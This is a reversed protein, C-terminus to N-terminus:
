GAEVFRTYLTRRDGNADTVVWKARYVGAPLASVRVGSGVAVNRLSVVRRSTAASVIRLAVKAHVATYVSSGAGPLTPLAQAVFPGYLTAGNNPAFSGLDPVQTSTMGGSLDDTQEIDRSPLGTADGLPPCINGTLTAGGIGVLHGLPPNALPKGYYDGAECTGGSLFAQEGTVRVKLHAVHLTTLRRGSSNRLAIVDGGRIGLATRAEGNFDARASRVLPGRARTFTYKAGPVLGSCLDSQAELNATCTPFGTPPFLLQSNAVASVSNPEGLPISLTVLAGNPNAPSVARDDESNLSLPTGPKLRGTHIVAVDAETECREVPSQATATRRVVVSIVGTQSCPSVLVGKGGVAYGHDLDFWGTWGSQTFPNGGSGTGILDPKPGGRGYVVAIGDRDDGFARAGMNVSWNGNAATRASAGAVIAGGRLLEVDVRVGAKTVGTNGTITSSFQKMNVTALPLASTTAASRQECGLDANSWMMQILYQHRNIVQNYPSGDLAYGLPTGVEPNECDDGVEFGNPDMWGTGEPDTISEVLEHAATDIANEAEPNGQPDAGPGPVGEVLVDPLAVYVVAGNGTDYLSHYGGFSTTACIGPMTCEDVDPPLFMFWVDHLGRGGPDTAQIRKDTEQQLQLDTICTAVGTPSACQVSKAPFPDSDNITDAAANYNIQYSGSGSYDGYQNLISFANAPTGSDHAVDAFFRQIQAEYSLTLLGPPPTFHYGSPAWFITHVTVDRMVQGGHYVVPLNAGSAIEQHGLPPMLGFAHGSRPHFPRSTTGALASPAACLLAGLALVAAVGSGFRKSAVLPVNGCV